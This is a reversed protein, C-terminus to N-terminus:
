FLYTQILVRKLSDIGLVQIVCDPQNTTSEKSSRMDEALSLSMTSKSFSSLLTQGESFRSEAGGNDYVIMELQRIRTDMEHIRSYMEKLTPIMTSTLNNSYPTTSNSRPLLSPSVIRQKEISAEVHPSAFQSPCSLFCDSEALKRSQLDFLPNQSGSRM